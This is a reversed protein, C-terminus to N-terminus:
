YFPAKELHPNQFLSTSIPFSLLLPAKRKLYHGWKKNTTTYNYVDCAASPHKSILGLFVKEKWSKEASGGESEKEIRKEWFDISNAQNPVFEISKKAEYM